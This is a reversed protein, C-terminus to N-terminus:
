FCHAIQVFQKVKEPDKKQKTEVGSNVDVAYPHVTEIAERLNDPTLGGALIVPIPSEEVITRSISWDHTIGTGGLREKTRSDLIIGDAYGVYKRARLVSEKGTISVSKIIKLYPLAKRIKVIETLDIDNHLQVTDVKLQKLLSIIDMATQLHTVAVSSVFPPVRKSLECAIPIDIKDEALHTIGVLFGIADAGSDLAIKMESLSNIGCIKAKM